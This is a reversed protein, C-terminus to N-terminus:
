EDALQVQLNRNIVFAKGAPPQPLHSLYGRDVLEQLTKPAQRQEVSYKRVVQTLERLAAAIEAEDDASSEAALGSSAASNSDPEGSSSDPAEGCGFCAVLVCVCVLRSIM